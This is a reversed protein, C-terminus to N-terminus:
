WHMTTTVDEPDMREARATFGVLDAFVVSVVKREARGTTAPATGLAAGCELCFRARDPNDTGCAPCDM